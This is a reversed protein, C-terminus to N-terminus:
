AHDGGSPSEKLPNVVVVGGYDQGENMDESAIEACGLSKASAIILSDWYRLQFRQHILMADKVLPLTIDAVHFGAELAAIITMAEIASMLRRKIVVTHFFEGLVQTSIAGDRLRMADTLLAQAKAQKIPESTDYAYVIVNTDLFRSVSM